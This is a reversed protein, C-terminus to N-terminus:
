VSVRPFLLSFGGAQPSALLCWDLLRSSSVRSAVWRPAVWWDLLAAAHPSAPLRHSRRTGILNLQPKTAIPHRTRRGRPGHGEDGKTHGTGARRHPGNQPGGKHGDVDHPGGERTAAGKHGGGKRTATTAWATEWGHGMWSAHHMIPACQGNPRRRTSTTHHVARTGTRTKNACGPRGDQWEIRNRESEKQNTCKM